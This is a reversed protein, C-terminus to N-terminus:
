FYALCVLHFSLFMRQTTYPYMFASILLVSFRGEKSCMIVRLHSSKGATQGFRPKYVQLCVQVDIASSVTPM